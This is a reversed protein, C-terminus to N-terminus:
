QRQEVIRFDDEILAKPDYERNSYISRIKYDPHLDVWPYLYRGPAYKPINATVRSLLEHLTHFMEDPTANGSIGAYYAVRKQADTESDYYPRTPAAVLEALTAQLEPQTAAAKASSIPQKPMKSVLPAIENLTPQGFHVSIELSITWTAVGTTMSVTVPKGQQTSIKNPTDMSVTEETSQTSCQNPPTMEPLAGNGATVLDKRLPDAQSTSLTQQQIHTLLRSIRVGENAIWDIWQDGMEKLWQGGGRKLINGQEDRNPVGSHHLAVIEWQDNFVPSGSSGPATDTHYHLFQELIDILDNTRLALRKPEGNLVKAEDVILPLLGFTCLATQGDRATRKVATVTYDLAQETLFFIQPELDFLFSHCRGGDADDQYDFEVVSESRALVAALHLANAAQPKGSM